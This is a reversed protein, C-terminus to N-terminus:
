DNCLIFAGFKPWESLAATTIRTLKGFFINMVAHDCKKLVVKNMYHVFHNKGCKMVVIDCFSLRVKHRQPAFHKKGRMEHRCKQPDCSGNQEMRACFSQGRGNMASAPTIAGYDRPSARLRASPPACRLGRSVEPPDARL